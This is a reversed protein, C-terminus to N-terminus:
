RGFNQIWCFPTEGVVGIDHCSIYKWTPNLIVRRHARNKISTDVLLVILAGRISQVGGVLNEASATVEPAREAIRQWHYSGDSGVHTLNGMRKIDKAHSISAQQMDKLPTLLPLTPTNHLDEILERSAEIEEALFVAMNPNKAIQKQLKNIHENVYPIYGKPNSRLLNIEDVMTQERTNLFAARPTLPKATTNNSTTNTSPPPVTKKNKRGPVNLDPENDSNNQTEKNKRGPAPPNNNPKNNEKNLRGPPPPNDNNADTNSLNTNPKITNPVIMKKSKAFNQVWVDNLKGVKGVEACALFEWEPNLIIKRHIRGTVNADVLLSLVAKRVNYHGAVLNEAGTALEPAAGTIRDFPTSGNSSRHNFNNTNSMNIGHNEAAQQLKPHPKVISMPKMRELERILETATAIEDELYDLEAVNGELLRDQLEKIYENVILTYAKPNSRVMNIETIMEKERTAMYKANQATNLKEMQFAATLDPASSPRSIIKNGPTTPRTTPPTTTTPRNTSTIPEVRREFGIEAKIHLFEPMRQEGVMVKLGKKFIGPEHELFTVRLAGWSNPEVFENEWYPMICRCNSIVSNVKLPESSNNRFRFEYVAPVDEQLYGFDHYSSEWTVLNRQGYGLQSFGLFGLILLITLKKAM